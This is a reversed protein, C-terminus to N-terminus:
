SDINDLGAEAAVPDVNDIIDNTELFEVYLQTKFEHVSYKAGMTLNCNACILYINEKSANGGDSDPIDHGRHCGASNLDIDAQCCYCKIIHKNQIIRLNNFPIVYDLKNKLSKHKSIDLSNKKEQYTSDIMRSEDRGAIEPISKFKETVETVSIIYEKDEIIIKDSMNKINQVNVAQVLKTIGNEFVSVEESKENVSDVILDYTKKEISGTGNYISFGLMDKLSQGTVFQQSPTGYVQPDMFRNFKHSAFLKRNKNNEMTYHDRDKQKDDLDMQKLDKTLTFEITKLKEAQEMKQKELSEAQEMKQKELSEAQEM